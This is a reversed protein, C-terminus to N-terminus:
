LRKATAKNLLAIAVRLAWLARGFAAVAKTNM